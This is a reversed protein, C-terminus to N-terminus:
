DVATITNTGKLTIGTFDALFAEDNSYDDENGFIWHDDVDSYFETGAQYTATINEITLEINAPNAPEEDEGNVGGCIAYFYFARNTASISVSINKFTLGSVSFQGGITGFLSYNDGINEARPVSVKLGSIIREGDCVIRANAARVSALRAVVADGAYEIDNIILFSEPNRSAISSFMNSVDSANRVVNWNGIVYRCYVEPEKAAPDTPRSIPGLDGTLDENPFTRVFTLGAIKKIEGSQPRESVGAISYSVLTDNNKFKEKGDTTTYETDNDTVKNGYEDTIVLKYHIKAVPLWKACVILGHADEINPAVMAGAEVKDAPDDSCVVRINRELIQEDVLENNDGLRAFVPRDTADDTVPRGNENLVPFVSVTINDPNAADYKDAPKSPDTADPTYTYEYKIEGVYKAVPADDATYRAPLYWGILDYAGRDVKMGRSDKTIDFFPAGEDSGKFYLERVTLTTSGDFYGGNSYYTVHTNYGALLESRGLGGIKCGALTCALCAAAAFIILLYVKLRKTM